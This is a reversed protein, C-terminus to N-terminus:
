DAHGYDTDVIELGLSDAYRSCENKRMEYEERPFINPNCYFILPRFKQQLLWEIVAASCPACCTHLVIKQM